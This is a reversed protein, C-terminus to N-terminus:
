APLALSLGLEVEITMAQGTNAVRYQGHQAAVPRGGVEVGAPAAGHFVLAFATRAFEPYGEGSVAAEVTLRLGARRLTFDTRYFAGERFAFSLGDDERLSSHYAGDEAPVFIHLEILEPHYGATSPPAEPWMPIVAGGRAYLPICDMPTQAVVFRRGALQEGTHWHHWSGAPLYVQRATTGPNYVPAVLLQRGLLYQDDIERVTADDQFAYVLPQQIPEGTEAAQMFATYLYPLLRYRLQLAQRVLDEVVEGFAWAYQDPNGMESHNRCFATLAGCQMWRAFLEPNTSGAFGGIDAGVFPQGSLGLGLAMPLSLWLHDWRSQNDGMWNAAYRQIGAFGARSLVFTRREPMARLLGDVTGMAMLLAYQNHYRAHSERGKVFRMAEPPVAGTAPENMDNWIGALGSAVHQANLEGWWDRGDRTAFDPFATKGPWVQGCYLDGGETKCLVDRAVAQDFVWYGPDYKVGPDVITIARFGREALRALMGPVDPFLEENWTFVRYGDMYEIDLWLADCPLARERHQAALQEVMAQTYFQWRCQHYGLAWLPPALMRGTLWTYGELIAQMSPGAFIYETYQGGRAHVSYATAPSFDVHMRYGNDFFFGAAGSGAQALHYFFPINVYYPEFEVSRIDGRPDNADRGQTFEATAFGNLVDTNWLTFSRGKRNLRGTKEGLGFFADERRCSRRLMFEDNLTAYAWPHGNRDLATEFIVSGDARYADIRFPSRGVSVTLQATRLRVAEVDQEVTFTPPAGSLDASVAFTPAEDFSGGRSIKLRVIAESIAEVRLLERDVEILVGREIPTVAGVQGLRTFYTPDIQSSEFYQTAGATM